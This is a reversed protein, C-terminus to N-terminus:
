PFVSCVYPQLVAAALAKQGADTYHTGDVTAFGLSAGGPNNVAEWALLRQRWNVFMVGQSAAAMKIYQDFTDLSARGTPWQPGNPGNEWAETLIVGIGIVIIKVSPKWAKIQTLMSVYKESFNVVPTSAICDNLGCELIVLTPNPAFILTSINALLYDIGTGAAGNQTTTDHNGAGLITNVQDIFNGTGTPWSVATGFGTTLSDSGFVINENARITVPALQPRDPAANTRSSLNPPDCALDTAVILGFVLWGSKRM